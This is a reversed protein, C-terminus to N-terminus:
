QASGRYGWFAEDPMAQGHPAGLFGGRSLANLLAGGAPASLVVSKGSGQASRRAALLLQIFSLDIETAATCDVVVAAHRALAETLSSYVGDASQITLAGSFVLRYAEANGQTM